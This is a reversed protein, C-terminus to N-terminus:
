SWAEGLHSTTMICAARLFPKIGQGLPLHQEHHDCWVLPSVVVAGLALQQSCPLGQVPMKVRWAVVKKDVGTVPDSAHSRLKHCM